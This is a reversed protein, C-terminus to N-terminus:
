HASSGQYKDPGPILSDIEALEDGTYNQTFARAHGAIEDAAKVLETENNLKLKQAKALTVISQLEPLPKLQNIKDVRIIARKARKAMKVAYAAKETAKAVGRFSYELDLIRGVVYLVRKREPTAERNEKKEDSGIFNHRVEGQLWSVLEFASGARHGGTNVLHENPVTHCQFCNSALKYIEGPRIMGAAATAALRQEKHEMTETERTVGPGGFDNHVDIWDKAAGHCSECSIGSVAKMKDNVKQVTYHCQMCDSESKIRKLGLKEKIEKAKPRRHLESFTNFHHTKQWAESESVHCEACAGAGVLNEANVAKTAPVVGTAAIFFSVVIKPINNYILSKCKIM